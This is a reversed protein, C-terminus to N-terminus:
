WLWKYFYMRKYINNYIKEHSDEAGFEGELSGLKANTKSIVSEMGIWIAKLSGLNSFGSPM